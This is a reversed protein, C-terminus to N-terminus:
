KYVIRADDRLNELYSDAYSGLRQNLLGDRIQALDQKELDLTQSRSCMMILTTTPEQTAIVYENEDLNTLINRTPGDIEARKVTKRKLVHNPNGKAWGYLDDCHNINARIAEINELESSPLAYRLYDVSNPLPRRYATERIGRLQFLALANPISLPDTVEGPALGFILPQLVGPLTDLKQWTVRGGFERTPADSFERAADSFADFSRIKSLERARERVEKEQGPQMAMIIETLLVEISSGSKEANASREVQAEDVNAQAGFRARVVERWLRQAFSELEFQLEEESVRIGLQDAAAKKLREEILQKPALEDPVGPFRMAELFMIRQKLEYNTIAQDNVLIAASFLNQAAVGLPALTLGLAILSTRILTKINMQRNWM